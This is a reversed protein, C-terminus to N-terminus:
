IASVRLIKKYALLRMDKLVGVCRSSKLLRM